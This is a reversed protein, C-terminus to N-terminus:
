RTTRCLFADFRSSIRMERRATAAIAITATAIAIFVVLSKKLTTICSTEKAQAPKPAANPGTMRRPRKQFRVFRGPAMAPMTVPAPTQATQFNTTVAEAASPLSSEGTKPM